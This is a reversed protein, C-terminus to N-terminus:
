TLSQASSSTEESKKVEAATQIEQANAAAFIQIVVGQEQDLLFNKTEEKNEPKEGDISVIAASLYEIMGKVTTRLDIDTGEKTMFDLLDMDMDLTDRATIGRVVIKKGLAEFERTPHEKFVISSLSM